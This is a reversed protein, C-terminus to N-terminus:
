AVRFGNRDLNLIASALQDEGVVMNVTINQPQADAVTAAAPAAAQSLFRELQNTLGPSIVTEGSTLRADFTDNPFGGPIKGGELLGPIKFGGKSGSGISKFAKIFRTVWAPEPIRVKFPKIKVQINRLEKKIKDFNAFFEAFAERMKEGIATFRDSSLHAQFGRAIADGIRGAARKHGEISAKAIAFGLRPALLVLAIVIREMGGNELAILFADVITFILDGFGDVFSTIIPGLNESFAEVIDPIATIIGGVIDGVLSFISRIIAPLRSLVRKFLVGIRSMFQRMAKGVVTIIRPLAELIVDIFEIGGDAIKGPVNDVTDELSKVFAGVLGKFAKTLTGVFGTATENLFKTFAPFFETTIKKVIEPIRKIFKEFREEASEVGTITIEGTEPDVTKKDKGLFKDAFSNFSEFKDLVVQPANAVNTLAGFIREFFGGQAFGEFVTQFISAGTTFASSIADSIGGGISAVISAADGVTLNSLREQVSDIARGFGAGIGGEFLKALEGASGFVDTLKIKAFSQLTEKGSLINEILGKSEKKIANVSDAAAAAAAPVDLLSEIVRDMGDAAGLLSLIIKDFDVEKKVVKAARAIEAFTTAVKPKKLGFFDKVEDTVNRITIKTKLLDKRFSEWVTLLFAIARITAPLLKTIFRAFLEIVESFTQDNDKFAKTLIDFSKGVAKISAIVVPNSTIMSGIQEQFDGFINTAQTLAGSFTNTLAEAAGGFRTTAFEVAAGAKLQEATLNRLAPIVEGLEGTLGSYTKGLNKVASDLSIGTAASLDIATSVLKQAEENSLDFSKALALQDLVVEDGVTSTAQLASAYDQMEKSAQESFDGSLKLSTNLKKVADEQIAAAATVDKIASVIGRAGLFAVAGVAITKLSLFSKEVSELSKATQKRFKNLQKGAGKVDFGIDITVDDNSAM